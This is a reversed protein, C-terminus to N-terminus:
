SIIYSLNRSYLLTLLISYNNEHNSLKPFILHLHYRKDFICPVFSSAWNLNAPYILLQTAKFNWSVGHRSSDQAEGESISLRRLWWLWDCIGENKSLRPRMGYVRWYVGFCCWLVVVFLSEFCLFVAFIHSASSIPM